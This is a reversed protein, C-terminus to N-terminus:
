ALVATPPVPCIRGLITQPTQGQHFRPLADYEIPLAEPPVACWARGACPGDLERFLVLAEVEVLTPRGACLVNVPFQVRDGPTFSM